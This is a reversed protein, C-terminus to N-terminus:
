LGRRYADVLTPPELDAGFGVLGADDATEPEPLAWASPGVEVPVVPLRAARGMRHPASVPPVNVSRTASSPRMTLTAEVGSSGARATLWPRSASAPLLGARRAWPVVTAVLASSSRRPARM